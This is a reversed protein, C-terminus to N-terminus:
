FTYGTNTFSGYLVTACYSMQSVPLAPEYFAMYFAFDFALLLLVAMVLVKLFNRIIKLLMQIYIGFLPLKDLYLVLDIWALFLAIFGAQWQRRSPCLCGHHFVTVFIISLIFLPIEMYNSPSKFYEWDIATYIMGWGRKIRQRLGKLHSLEVLELFLRVISCLIVIVAASILFGKRNPPM